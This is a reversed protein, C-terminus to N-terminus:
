PLLEENRYFCTHGGLVQLWVTEGVPPLRQESACRAKLVHGQVDGAVEAALMQYTGVDQVRLVRCPLAGPAGEGALALYEPRVGVQLSGAPLERPAPVRRGARRRAPRGKMALATQFM